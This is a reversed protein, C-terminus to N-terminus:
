PTLLELLVLADRAHCAADAVMPLHDGGHVLHHHSADAIMGDNALGLVESTGPRHRDLVDRGLAPEAVYTWKTRGDTPWRASKVAATQSIGM